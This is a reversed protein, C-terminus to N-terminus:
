TKKPIVRIHVYGEKEAGYIVINGNGSATHETTSSISHFKEKGPVKFSATPNLYQVTDGKQATLESNTPQGPRFAVVKEQVVSKKGFSDTIDKGSMQLYVTPLIVIIAVAAVARALYPLGGICYSTLVIVWYLRVLNKCVVAIDKYMYRVDDIIWWGLLIVIGLAIKKLWSEIIKYTRVIKNKAGITDSADEKAGNPKNGKESPLIDPM